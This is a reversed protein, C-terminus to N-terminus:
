PNNYLNKIDVSMDHHRIHLEGKWETGQESQIM